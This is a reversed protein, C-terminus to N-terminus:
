KNRGQAEASAPVPREGTMAARFGETTVVHFLETQVHRDRALAIELVGRRQEDPVVWLVGPFLGHEAQHQGTAAYRQYVAAKRVVVGPHETARDVEIFLHDEYDGTATITFLDPKLWAPAGHAALYSRWCDPETELRVLEVAGSRALEHLRVALEAVDLTHATFATSPELYRRRTPDGHLTRLLREGSAGLQWVIGSSGARAGGIRRGLRAVLGHAELRTLVRMTATSAAMQSSHREGEGHVFHLRRILATTLLRHDRLDDLVARDRESLQALLEAM